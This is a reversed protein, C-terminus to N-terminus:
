AAAAAEGSPRKWAVSLDVPLMDLSIPLMMQRVETHPKDPTEDSRIALKYVSWLVSMGSDFGFM